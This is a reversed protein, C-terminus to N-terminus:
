YASCLGSLSDQCPAFGLSDGIMQCVVEITETGLECAAGYVEGDLGMQKLGTLASFLYQAEAGLARDPNSDCGEGEFDGDDYPLRDCDLDHKRWEHMLEHVVVGAALLPEGLFGEGLFLQDDLPRWGATGELSADYTTVRVSDALLLYLASGDHVDDVLEHEERIASLAGQLVEPAAQDNAVDGIDTTLLFLASAILADYSNEIQPVARPADEGLSELDVALDEVLAEACDASIEDLLSSDSRFGGAAYHAERIVARGSSPEVECADLTRQLDVEGRCGVTMMSAALGFLSAAKEM